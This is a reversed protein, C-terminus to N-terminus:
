AWRGHARLAATPKLMLTINRLANAGARPGWRCSIIAPAGIARLGADVVKRAAQELPKPDTVYYQWDM